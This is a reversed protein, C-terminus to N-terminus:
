SYFRGLGVGLSAYINEYVTPDKALIGNFQSVTQDLSLTRGIFAWGGSLVLQVAANYNLPLSTPSNTLINAWIAQDRSNAANQFSFIDVSCM